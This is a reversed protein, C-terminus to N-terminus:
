VLYSLIKNLAVARHSIKNKISSELEALYCNHSPIWFVPDYGFGHIGKLEFGIEGELIGNEIICNGDPMCLAMTCTFRAKREKKAANKLIKIIENCKDTYSKGELFRASNIGPAGNLYDIELGSDDALTQIKSLEAITKAKILANEEYTKGTENIQPNINLDRLSLLKIPKGELIASIEELKHNNNTAILLEKM